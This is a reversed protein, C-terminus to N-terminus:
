GGGAAMHRMMFSGRETVGVTLGDDLGNVEVFQRFGPDNARRIIMRSVRYEGHRYVQAAEVWKHSHPFWSGHGRMTSRDKWRSFQSGDLLAANWGGFARGWLIWDGTSSLAWTPPLFHMESPRTLEGAHDVCQVQMPQATLRKAHARNFAALEESRGSAAEVKILYFHRLFSSALGFLGRKPANPMEALKLLLVERGNIWAYDEDEGLVLGTREARETLDQFGLDADM